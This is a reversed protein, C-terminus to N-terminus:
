SKYVQSMAENIPDNTIIREVPRPMNLIANKLEMLLMAHVIQTLEEPKYSGGGHALYALSKLQGYRQVLKYDEDSVERGNINM